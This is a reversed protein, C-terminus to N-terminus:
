FITIHTTHQTKLAEVCILAMKPYRQTNHKSHVLALRSSITIHTKNQTKLVEVGIRPMKLNHKSYVM